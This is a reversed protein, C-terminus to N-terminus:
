RRATALEYAREPVFRGAGAICGDSEGPLKVWLFAAVKPDGTATTSPTGIARGKPDCWEDGLPGNGNRSTDVVARLRAVGVAALVKKAYAVEDRTSRYNSVNTSIGDGSEKIGAAVLRGAMEAPPLWNSHGADLYVKAAASAAKLKRTAYAMSAHVEAQQATNLCNSMLPLVDPELVVTAPRGALGAAVEDIWKRYEDHSPMGGASAGSCDRNPINYVVLIPTQGAAAAAGVFADVESRVAATNKQTFWRGQPVRAIRDRIVAARPDKPNAAVWDAASTDPDVYFGAAAPAAKPAVSPPPSSAATWVGAPPSDTGSGDCAVLAGVALVAAAMRGVVRM